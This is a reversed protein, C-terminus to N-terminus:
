RDIQLLSVSRTWFIDASSCRRNRSYPFSGLLFSRRCFLSFTVCDEGLADVMSFMYGLFPFIKVRAIISEGFCSFGGVCTDSGDASFMGLSFFDGM